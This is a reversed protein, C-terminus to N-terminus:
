KIEKAKKLSFAFLPPGIITTIIVASIILNKLIEGYEHFSTGIIGAFGLTLGAQAVFGMWGYRKIRLDKAGLYTSLYLSILRIIVFFIAAPFILKLLSFNLSAGSISFFVILVPLSSEELSSMFNKGISSLNKIVIGAVMCSLLSHFHFHHAVASILFAAGLIFPIREGKFFSFYAIIIGAFVAGLIISNLIELSLNSIASVGGGSSLLAAVFSFLFIIIIDKIITVGIITDTFSGEAKTEIIIAITTAPSKAVAAASLVLFILLAEKLTPSIRLVKILVPMGIGVALFAFILQFIIVGTIDKWIKKAKLFDVKAGAAFAILALAIENIFGLHSLNKVDIISLFYPGVLMGTILYGTIQPFVTNKLIKGGFFSSIVLYGFAATDRSLLFGEKGPLRSLFFGVIILFLAILIFSVM